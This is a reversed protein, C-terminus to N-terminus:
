REARATSGATLRPKHQRWDTTAEYAAAVRLVLPEAFAPGMIQLGVPLGDSFGCPVSIAPMGTLNCPVTTRNAVSRPAVNLSRGPELTRGIPPAVLPVSPGVVVDVREFARAFDQQILTRMQQSHLYETARVLLGGRIRQLVDPGYDHPRERLWTTHWAAAESSMIVNGAVQAHSVHPLWVEQVSAGLHELTAIADRVLREVDPEVIEFFYERPVGVRLGAVGRALDASFDPVAQMASAHDRAD